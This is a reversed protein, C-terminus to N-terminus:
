NIFVNPSGNIATDGCSIPDGSRHIKKSNVFVNSTSLATGSHCSDGCCHVPYFDGVSTAPINNIFVNPSGTVCPRPTYCQGTSIDVGKRIARRM